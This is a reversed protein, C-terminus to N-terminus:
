KLYKVIHVKGSHKWHSDEGVWAHGEINTDISYPLYLRGQKRPLLYQLFKGDKDLLHVKHNIYDAVLVQGIRDACVDVPCFEKFLSGTYKYRVRRFADLVIVKGAETMLEGNRDVIYLDGNIKNEAVKYPHKFLKSDLEHAIQGNITYILVRGQSFFTVAINGNQLCCLGGPISPISFLTRVVKKPSISTVCRTKNNVLIIDGKTTLAFSHFGFDTNITDLSIGNSDFLQLEEDNTKVWAQDSTVCVLETKGFRIDITATIFPKRILQCPLDLTSSATAAVSSTQIEQSLANCIGLDSEEASTAQSTQPVTAETLSFRESDQSTANSSPSDSAPVTQNSNPLIIKGFMKELSKIDIQGPAFTHPTIRSIKPPTDKQRLPEAEYQLLSGVDGNRLKDECKKVEQKVKGLGDSVRKEQQQLIALNEAKIEALHQKNYELIEDVRKHFERARIDLDNETDNVQEIYDSTAGRAESMACEWEKLDGSELSSLEEQIMKQKDKLINGLKTLDHGKHTSTVCDSCSPQVCKECWYTCERDGHESCHLSAVQGPTLKEDYAVVSHHKSARNQLHTVKCNTCLKEGCTNCNHEVPQGCSCMIIWNFTAM